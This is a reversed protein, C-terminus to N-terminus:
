PVVECVPPQYAEYGWCMTIPASPAVPLWAEGVRREVGVEIQSAGQHTLWRRGLEAEFGDPTTAFAYGAEGEAPALAFGNKAYALQGDFALRDIGGSAPRERVPSLTWALRLDAGPVVAGDFRVRIAIADPLEITDGRVGLWLERPVLGDCPANACTADLAIAHGDWDGVAGDIAIDRAPSICTAGVAVHGPVCRPTYPAGPDSCAALVAAIAVATRGPRATM